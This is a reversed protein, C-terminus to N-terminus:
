EQTVVKKKVRAVLSKWVFEFFFKNFKHIIDKPPTPLSIFLHVIKSIALSKVTLRGLPTLNRRRWQNLLNEISMIKKNYYAKVM